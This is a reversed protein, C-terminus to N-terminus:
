KNILIQKPKKHEPVIRHLTIRLIGNDLDASTVTIDSAITFTRTFSRNAIGRHIWDTHQNDSEKASAGTVTLTNDFLEITINDESIGAVAIEITYIDDTNKTSTNRYINFPPYSQGELRSIKDFIKDFGLAYPTLKNLELLAAQQTRTM